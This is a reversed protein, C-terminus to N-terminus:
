ITLNAYRTSVVQDHRHPDNRQRRANKPRRTQPHSHILTGSYKGIGGRAATKLPDHANLATKMGAPKM